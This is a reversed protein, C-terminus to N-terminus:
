HMSMTLSRSFEVCRLLCCFCHSILKFLTESITCTFCHRYIIHIHMKSVVGLSHSFVRNGVRAHTTVSPQDQAQFFRVEGEVPTPNPLGSATQETYPSCLSQVYQLYNYM